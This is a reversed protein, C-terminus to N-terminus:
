FNARNLLEISKLCNWRLKTNKERESARKDLLDSELTRVPENVTAAKLQLKRYSCCGTSEEEGRWDTGRGAVEQGNGVSPM